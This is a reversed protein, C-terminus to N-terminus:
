PGLLFDLLDNVSGARPRDRERSRGADPRGDLLDGLGGGARDLLDRLDELPRQPLSPGGPPVLPADPDPRAARDPAPAPRGEAATGSAAAARRPTLIDLLCGPEIPLGFSECSLVLAARLFRREPDNAGYGEVTGPDVGVAGLGVDDLRSPGEGYADAGFLAKMLKPEGLLTELLRGVGAALDFPATLVRTPAAELTPEAMRM